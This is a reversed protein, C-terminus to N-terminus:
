CLQKTQSVKFRPRFCNTHTSPNEETPHVPRERDGYLFINVPKISDSTETTQLPYIRPCGEARDAAVVIGKFPDCDFADSQESVGLRKLDIEELGREVFQREKYSYDFTQIRATLPSTHPKCDYSVLAFALEDRRDSVKALVSRHQISDHSWDFTLKQLIKGTETDIFYLTGNGEGECDREYGYNFNDVSNEDYSLHVLVGRGELRWLFTDQIGREEPHRNATRQYVRDRGVALPSHRSGFTREVNFSITITESWLIAGSMLDCVIQRYRETPGGDRRTVYLLGRAHVTMTTPNSLGPPFATELTQVSYSTQTSHSDAEGRWGVRAGFLNRGQKYGIYEGAAWLGESATSFETFLQYGNANVALGAVWREASAGKNVYRKYRDLADVKDGKEPLADPFHRRVGSTRIWDVVQWRWNQNVQQACPLDRTHLNELVLCVCAYNLVDFPDAKPLTSLTLLTNNLRNM